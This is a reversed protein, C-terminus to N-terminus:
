GVSFGAVAGDGDIRVAFPISVGPGFQIAYDYWSEEGDQRIRRFVASSPAGYSGLGAVFRAGAGGTLRTKLRDSFRAYDKGAQLEEFAARATQTIAPNEGPASRLAKAAIAPYLDAFVVNTLTEGAEPADDGLNTFAIIRTDQRPFYEDATTFGLSGGTHGIRPEGYVSDVFLGFGYNASGRKATMFPTTMQRYDDLSIIKGGRLAADWAALDRLTSVLFGASNAWAADIIPARELKGDVHHYGIAMNPLHGEEATTYTDKMHLPDLIHHRLYDKYSEGSVTEMVKGLLLYGTNSYSWQSGPPFDLPLAAVRGILDRYAIPQSALRYLDAPPLDLYDHLGSTHTLLQRLTVEGAHPADPLYDSLPRGIQLKGAEQLQLIGAATFQKTISGIEFFTEPRAPIAKEEDRMGFARVLVIKNHQLIMIAAGPVSFRQMAARVDRDIRAAPLTTHAAAMGPLVALLIALVNKGLLMMQVKM